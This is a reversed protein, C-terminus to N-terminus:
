MTVASIKTGLQALHITLVFSLRLISVNPKPKAGKRVVKALQKWAMTLHASKWWFEPSAIWLWEVAFDWNEYRIPAVIQSGGDYEFIFKGLTKEEATSLKTSVVFFLVKSTVNLDTEWSEPMIWQKMLANGKQM